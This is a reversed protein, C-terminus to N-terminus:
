NSNLDDIKKSFELSKKYDSIQKQVSKSSKNYDVFAEAIDRHRSVPSSGNDKGDPNTYYKQVEISTIPVSRSVLDVTPVFKSKDTLSEGFVKVSLSDEYVDSGLLPNISIFRKM